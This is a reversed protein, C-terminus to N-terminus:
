RHRHEGGELKAGEQVSSRYVPAEKEVQRWDVAEAVTGKPHEYWGPDQYSTIDPRVKLVTMMGGMDIKDFPGEGGLMAITNRPQRMDHHMGSMGTNGMTMYEPLLRRVRQDVGELDVGVLNPFEHGMQNMIHHTKHCHFAWDGPEDAIFQIDRTAGVPVNVTTEPLQASSPTQGGDTGTVRFSYGHLHIPHTNMSLNALRVRVREGQKVVLPETAPFACSNFTSLNFDTMEVPVPRATGAKVLWEMLFIGFDRDVPPDERERPHIVFLGMMGLAMQTMEDFHPHYMQTGWQRLTFEYRFTEGPPIPKQNLGAVGDMGSPLLVGHWHVSTPEPLRNTVYIRVRDGEIVEITPGPTQGNYGWCNVVLGPAFERQVPEAVLHFVKVGDVLKWPLTSGNPTIVPTYPLEKSQPHAAHEHSGNQQAARIQESSHLLITGGAVAAASSIMMDRRSIM